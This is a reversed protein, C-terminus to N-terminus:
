CTSSKVALPPSRSRAIPATSIRSRAAFFSQATRPASGLSDGPLETKLERRIADLNDNLLAASPRVTVNFFQRGGRTDWIILSTEGPAKGEVMVETPSTAHVEAIEGQGIAVRMIPWACDVLVTKGM